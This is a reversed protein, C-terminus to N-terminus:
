ILSWKLIDLLAPMLNYDELPTVKQKQPNKLFTILHSICDKIKLSNGEYFINKDCWNNFEEKSLLYYQAITYCCIETPTLGKKLKLLEITEEYKKASISSTVLHKYSANYEVEGFDFSRVILMQERALSYYQDYNATSALNNLLTFNIYIARKFNNENLYVKKAKEAFFLSEYYKKHINHNIAIISYCIGSNYDKALMEKTFTKSYALKLMNYIILLDENFMDKYDSVYNFDEIHETLIVPIDNESFTVVFLKILEIIPSIIYDEDLLKDLQELYINHKTSVRFNIDLYIENLLKELKDVIDDTILKLKFHKALKKVIEEGINQEKTKARRYSTPAIKKSELFADKNEVGEKILVDFIPIQYMTKKYDSINLYKM